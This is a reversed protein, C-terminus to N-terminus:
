ETMSKPSNVIVFHKLERPLCDTLGELLLKNELGLNRGINMKKQYYESVDEGTKFKIESFDSLSLEGPTTFEENFLQILEEWQLM